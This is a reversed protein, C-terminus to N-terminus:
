ELLAAAFELSSIYAQGRLQSQGAGHTRDLKNVAAPMDHSNL